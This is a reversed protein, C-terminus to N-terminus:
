IPHLNDIIILAQTSEDYYRNECLESDFYNMCAMVFTLFDQHIKHMPQRAQNHAQGLAPHVYRVINYLAEYGNKSMAPIKEFHLFEGSFLDKSSFLHHIATHM